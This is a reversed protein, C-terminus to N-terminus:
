YGRYNPSDLLRRKEWFTYLHGLAFMLGMGFLIAV